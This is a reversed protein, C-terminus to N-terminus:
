GLIGGMERSGSVNMSVRVAGVEEASYSGMGDETTTDRGEGTGVDTGPTRGGYGVLPSGLMIAGVPVPTLGVVDVLKGGSNVPAAIAIFTGLKIAPTNPTAAKTKHSSYHPYHLTPPHFSPSIRIQV